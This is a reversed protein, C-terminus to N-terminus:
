AAPQRERMKDELTGIRGRTNYLDRVIENLLSTQQQENRELEALRVLLNDWLPRTERSRAASQEELAVLRRDIADLAAIVREEFTPLRKTTDENQSM